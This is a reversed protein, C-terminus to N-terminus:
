LELELEDNANNQGQEMLNLPYKKWYQKSLFRLIAYGLVLLPTYALVCVVASLAKQSQQSVNKTIQSSIVSILCLNALLIADSTNVWGYDHDKGHIKCRKKTKIKNKDKDGDRYKGEDRQEENSEEINEGICCIKMQCVHKSNNEKGRVDICCRDDETGDKTVENYPKFYLFVSLILICFADLVCRKEPGRPIINALFVLLFRCVFYFAAFHRYNNKFCGQFVQLFPLLKRVIFVNKFNPTFILFLTFIGVLVLCSLAVIGYVIHKWHGFFDLQGELFLVKRGGVNSAHLLKLSIGLSLYQM